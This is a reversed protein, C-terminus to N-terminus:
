QGLKKIRELVRHRSLAEDIIKRVGIHTKGVDVGSKALRKEIEPLPVHLQVFGDLDELTDEPLNRLEEPTVSFGCYTRTDNALRTLFVNNREMAEEKEWVEMSDWRSNDDRLYSPIEPHTVATKLLIRLESFLGRLEQEDKVDLFKKM